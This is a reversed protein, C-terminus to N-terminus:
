VPGWRPSGLCLLLCEAPSPPPSRLEDLLVPHPAETLVESRVDRSEQLVGTIGVTVLNNKLFQLLESESNVGAYLGDVIQATPIVMQGLVTM